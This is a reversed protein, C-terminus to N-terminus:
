DDNDADGSRIHGVSGHGSSPDVWYVGSESTSGTASEAADLRRALEALLAVTSASRLPDPDPQEDPFYGHLAWRVLPENRTPVQHAEWNQVTREDRHVKEALQKQSWGARLRAEALVAGSIVGDSQWTNVGM